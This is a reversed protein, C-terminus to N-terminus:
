KESYRLLWFPKAAVKVAASNTSRLMRCVFIGNNPPLVIVFGTQHMSKQLVEATAKFVTEQTKRPRREKVQQHYKSNDDTNVKPYGWSITLVLSSIPVDGETPGNEM